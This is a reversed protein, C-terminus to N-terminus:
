LDCYSRTDISVSIRLCPPPPLHRVVWELQEQLVHFKAEKEERGGSAVIDEKFEADILGAILKFAQVQQHCPLNILPADSCAKDSDSHQNCKM